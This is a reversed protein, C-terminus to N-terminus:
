LSPWAPEPPDIPIYLFPMSYYYKYKSIMNIHYKKLNKLLLLNYKSSELKNKSLENNKFIKSNYIDSYTSEILKCTVIYEDIVLCDQTSKIIMAKCHQRTAYIRYTALSLSIILIFIICSKIKFKLMAFRMPRRLFLLKSSRGSTSLASPYFPRVISETRRDVIV